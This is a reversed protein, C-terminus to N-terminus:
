QVTTHLCKRTTYKFTMRFTNWVPGVTYCAGLVQSTVGATKYFTFKLNTNPNMLLSSPVLVLTSQTSMFKYWNPSFPLIGSSIHKKTLVPLYRADFVDFSSLSYNNQITKNVLCLRGRPATRTCLDVGTGAPSPRPWIRVSRLTNARRGARCTYPGITICRSTTSLSFTKRVTLTRPCNFGFLVPLPFYIYIYTYVNKPGNIRARTTGEPVTGSLHITNYIYEIRNGVSTM